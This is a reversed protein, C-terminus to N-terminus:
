IGHGAQPVKIPQMRYRSLNQLRDPRAVKLTDWGKLYQLKDPRVVKQTRCM